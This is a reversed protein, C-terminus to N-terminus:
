SPIVGNLLGLILVGGSVFYIARFKDGLLEAVNAQNARLEVWGRALGVSVIVLAIWNCLTLLIM